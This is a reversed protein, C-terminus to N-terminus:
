IVPEKYLEIEIKIAEIMMAVLDSRFTYPILYELVQEMLQIYDNQNKYLFIVDFHEQLLEAFEDVYKEHDDTGRILKAEQEEIKKMPDTFDYAMYTGDLISNLFAKAHSLTFNGVGTQSDNWEKDTMESIKKGKNKTKKWVGGVKEYDDLNDVGEADNWWDEKGGLVPQKWSSPVKNYNHFNKSSKKIRDEEAKKRIEEKTKKVAEYRKIFDDSVSINNEKVIKCDMVVLVNENKDEKLILPKLGDANNAFNLKTGSNGEKKAKFGVKACWKGNFNVILMLLYNSVLCRDNMQEWDTGSFFAAMEHHEHIHQQKHTGELLGPYKEYMEMIDETKFSEKGVEYSTYASSGIDCLFLDEAIIKWEDLDNISGEERTILEGSWEIAGIEQQLFAIKNCLEKTIILTPKNNIELKELCKERTKKNEETM